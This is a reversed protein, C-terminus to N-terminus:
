HKKDFWRMFLAGLFALVVSWVLGGIALAMAWKASIREKLLEIVGLRRKVEAIEQKVQALEQKLALRGRDAEDFREDGELLRHILWENQQRQISQQEYMWRQEDSAKVLLPKPVDPHFKPIPKM